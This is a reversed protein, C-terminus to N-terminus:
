RAPSESLMADSFVFSSADEMGSADFFVMAGDSRTSTCSTLRLRWATSDLMSVVNGLDGGVQGLM